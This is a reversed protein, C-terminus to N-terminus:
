YGRNSQRGYIHRVIPSGSAMLASAREAELDKIHAAYDSDSKYEIERDAFKM